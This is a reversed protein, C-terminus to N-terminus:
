NGIISAIETLKEEISSEDWDKLSPFNYPITSYGKTLKLYSWSITNLYKGFRKAAAVRFEGRSREPPRTFASKVEEESVVTKMDHKEVLSDFLPDTVASYQFTAARKASTEDLGKEALFYAEFNREIISLKIIWELSSALDEILGEELKNLVWKLEKLAFKDHQHAELESFAKEVAELYYANMYDTAKIKGGDVLDIEWDGDLNCSIKQNQERPNTLEPVHGLLGRQIATLVYSTFSYKLFTTYDSRTGEGNVVHVRFFKKNAHPEDRTSIIPYDTSTESYIKKPFIVRPSIMYVDGVYGGAGFLIQRLIMYPVMKHMNDIYTAREVLYNEHAGVTTYQEIHKPDSAINTKYLHVKQGTEEEFGWSALRAFAECAKEYAVLELPNRCEPTSVEFLNSHIYCVGGNSLCARPINDPPRFVFVGQGGLSEFLGVPNTGAAFEQEAGQWMELSVQVM